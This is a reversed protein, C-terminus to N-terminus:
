KNKEQNSEKDSNKEKKDPPPEYEAMMCQECIGVKIEFDYKLERGCFECNM